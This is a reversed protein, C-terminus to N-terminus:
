IRIMTTFLGELLHKDIPMSWEKRSINPHRARKGQTAHTSVKGAATGASSSAAIMRSIEEFPFHSAPPPHADAHQATM